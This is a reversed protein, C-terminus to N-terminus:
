GRKWNPTGTPSNQWGALDIFHSFPTYLAEFWLGEEEEKKKKKKKKQHM